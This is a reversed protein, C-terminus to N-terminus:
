YRIPTTMAQVDKYNTVIPQVASGYRMIIEDDFTNKLMDRLPRIAFRIDLEKECAAPITEAYEGAGNSSVTISDERLAIRVTRNNENEVSACVACRDIAALLEGKNVKAKDPMVINEIITRYNMYQEALQRCFFVGEGTTVTVTSGDTAVSVADKLGFALMKLIADRHITMSIDGAGTDGTETCVAIQTGKAAVVELKGGERHFHVGELIERPDKEAAAYFVKRIMEEMREGDMRIESAKAPDVTPRSPYASIDITPFKHKIEGCQMLMVGPKKDPEITVNGHPLSACLNAVDAPLLFPETGTEVEYMAGSEMNNASMTHEDIYICRMTNIITKSAIIPKLKAIVAALEKSHIIM